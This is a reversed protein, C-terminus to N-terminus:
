PWDNLGGQPVELFMGLATRLTWFRGNFVGQSQVATHRLPGLFSCPLGASARASGVSILTTYRTGPQPSVQCGQHSIKERTRLIIIHIGIRSCLTVCFNTVSDIYCKNLPLFWCLRVLSLFVFFSLAIIVLVACQKPAPTPPPLPISVTEPLHRLSFFTM